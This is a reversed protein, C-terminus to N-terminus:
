ERGGLKLELQRFTDSPRQAILKIHDKTGQDLNAWIPRLKRMHVIAKHTADEIDDMLGQITDREEQETM